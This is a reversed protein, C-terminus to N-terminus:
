PARRKGGMQAGKECAAAVGHDCARRRYDAAKTQDKAVGDGAAYLEGLKACAAGHRGVCAKDLLAATKEISREVGMGHGHMMALSVCAKAEGGDCGKQYLTAAHKEHGDVNKSGFLLAGLQACTQPKGPGCAKTFAAVTERPNRRLLAQMQALAERPRGTRLLADSLGTRFGVNGPDHRTITELARIHQAVSPPAGMASGATLGRGGPANELWLTAEQECIRRGADPSPPVSDDGLLSWGMGFHGLLVDQDGDGDKDAAVVSSFCPADRLLSHVEFRGPQSQRLLLVAEVEVPPGPPDASSSLVAHLGAPLNAVAVIDLDGDGDFDAVDLDHVGPLTALQEAVFRGRGTNRLWHVGQFPALKPADLIDGNFHLVDLDGDRDLDVVHLGIMGWLPNRADFLTARHFRGDGDNRWWDVRELHQAVAAVIDLDGDGDMDALEVAIHGATDDLVRRRYSWQGNKMTGHTLVHLAGTKQWGFEAIVLDTVGDGDLDGTALDAVRGADTLLSQRTAAGTVDRFLAVGGVTTDDASFVGLEAVVLDPRQDGDLDAMIARVPHRATVLRTSTPTASGLSTRSIHGFLMDTVLVARADDVALDAILAAPASGLKRLAFQPGAPPMPPYTRPAPMRKAAHRGYFELVKEQALYGEPQPYFRALLGYMLKMAPAWTRDTFMGPQPVPHCGGCAAQIETPIAVSPTGGNALAPAGEAPSAPATTPPPTEPRPDESRTCGVLATAVCILHPLLFSNPMTPHLM